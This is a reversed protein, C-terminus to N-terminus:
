LYDDRIKEDMENKIEDKRAGVKLASEVQDIRGDKNLDDKQNYGSPYNNAPEFDPIFFNQQDNEYDVGDKLTLARVSELDIDEDNDLDFPDGEQDQQSNAGSGPDTAHDIQQNIQEIFNGEMNKEYNPNEVFEDFNM